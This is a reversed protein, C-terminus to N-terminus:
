VKPVYRVAVKRKGKVKAGGGTLTIGGALMSIGGSTIAGGMVTFFLLSIPDNATIGTILVMSGLATIASGAVIVVIGAIKLDRNWRGMKVISDPHIIQDAVSVTGDQAIRLPGRARKLEQDGIYIIQVNTGEDLVKINRGSAKKLVLASQKQALLANPSFFIILATVFFAIFYKM